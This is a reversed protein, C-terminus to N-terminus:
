HNRIEYQLNDCLSRLDSSHRIESSVEDSAKLRPRFTIKDSTRGSDGSLLFFSFLQLFDQYYPLDLEYCIEQMTQEPRTVLDEYKFIKCNSHDNLFKKYRVAYEDICPNPFHLWNNKTLSLYSDIPHRVWLISRTSFAGSLIALLTNRGNRHNKFCYHSHSHDRLVLRLGSAICKEHITRVGNLFVDTLLNKPTNRSANRLLQILDTPTFVGKRDNITSHPEVESMLLTNPMSSICKSVLTGGTCAFHHITRIPEELFDDKCALQECQQLLSPFPEFAFEIESGQKASTELLVVCDEIAEVFEQPFKANKKYM